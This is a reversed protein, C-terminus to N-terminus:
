GPLIGSDRRQRKSPQKTKRSLDKGAAMVAVAEASGERFPTMAAMASQIHSIAESMIAFRDIVDIDSTYIRDPKREENKSADPEPWVLPDVVALCAIPDAVALLKALKGKDRLLDLVSSNIEADEQKSAPKGAVRDLHLEKVLATLQDMSDLVGAAILDNLSMRRLLCKAGSPVAFDYTDETKSGLNYKGQSPM